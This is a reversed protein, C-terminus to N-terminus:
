GREAIMIKLKIVEARTFPPIEEQWNIIRYYSNKTGIYLNATQHEIRSSTIFEGDGFRGKSDGWCQGHLRDGEIRANTIYATIKTM